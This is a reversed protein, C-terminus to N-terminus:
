GKVRVTFVKRKMIEPPVAICPIFSNTSLGLLPKKRRMKKVNVKEEHKQTMHHHSGKITSFAANANTMFQLKKNGLIHITVTAVKKTMIEQRLPYEHM